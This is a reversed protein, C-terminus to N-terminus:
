NRYLKNVLGGDIEETTAIDGQSRNQMKQM